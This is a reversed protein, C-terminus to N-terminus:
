RVYIIKVCEKSSKTEIRAFYIGPTLGRPKWLYNTNHDTFEKVVRGLSNYIKVKFPIQSEFQVAETFPNPAIKISTKHNVVLTKEEIATIDTCTAFINWYDSRNSAWGIWVRSAEDSLIVPDIDSAPDDTVVGPVKWGNDYYSYYINWNGDRNSMWCIWPRGLEDITISPLIDDAPDSTVPEPSLWGGGDYYSYYIESQNNVWRHWILWIRNLSDVAAQVAANDAISTDVPFVDQWSGTYKRGYIHYHGSSSASWFVWINNNQDVAIAPDTEDFPTQTIAYSNTWAGGSSANSVYINANGDRFSKFAIWVKDDSGAALSPQVDHWGGMPQVYQSASWSNNYHYASHVNFHDYGQSYDRFSQWAIWLRGSNDAATAPFFDYYEHWAISEAPAFGSGTFFSGYTDSRVIRGSDWFIWLRNQASGLSPHGNVFQSNEVQYTDWDVSTQGSYHPVKHKVQSIPHNLVKLSPDGLMLTGMFWDYNLQHWKKFADGFTSDNALSGYLGALSNIGYMLSSNAIVVQSYAHSFLYWNALNNTETFRAAMCCNLFFFFAHPDVFPIEFSFVSGGGPLENQLFFTHAWCSSHAVLHVFQFEQGLRNKYDYATTTNENNIVTVDNYLYGMGHDNPYWNVENYVLGKNPLTLVGTRYQHNIDFYNNILRAENDYTLRSAYLRGVWIDPYVSGSHHDYKGNSNNDTWTGNLDTFFFDIPYDEGYSSEEWWAIPLDGVMVAGILGNSVQAILLNRIDEPTGGLTTILQISYGENTLDQIYQNISSQIKLYLSDNVIVVVLNDRAADRTEIVKCTFPMKVRLAAYEEYHSPMRDFPDIYQLPKLNQFAFVGILFIM